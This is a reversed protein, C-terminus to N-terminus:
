DVRLEEIMQQHQSALQEDGLQTYATALTEHLSRRGHIERLAIELDVIADDWRHLQALIQGRTARIEAQEPAIELAANSIALANELQPSTSNALTWALNNLLVPMQPNLRYAQELHLKAHDWHQTAAAHTGLILHVTAPVEGKALVAKIRDRAQQSDTNTSLALAALRTLADEHNAREQLARELLALQQGPPAQQRALEDFRAVYLNALAIRVREDASDNRAALLITEAQLHDGRRAAARAWLMRMEIDEPHSEVQKQLFNVAQQLERDARSRDGSAAYVDALTLRFEPEQVSLAELQPIAQAWNQGALHIDVLMRRAQDRFENAELSHEFHHVLLEIDQPTLTEHERLLLKARVFHAEPLGATKSPALEDLLRKGLTMDGRQLAVRALNFRTLVHSPALQNLKEAYLAAARFDGRDFAEDAAARYHVVTNANGNYRQFIIIGWLAAGSAILPTLLLVLHWRRTQFWVQMLWTVRQAEEILRDVIM